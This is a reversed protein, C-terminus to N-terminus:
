LNLGYKQNIVYLINLLLRNYICLISDKYSSFTAFADKLEEIEGKIEYFLPRVDDYQKNNGQRVISSVDTLTRLDLSTKHLTRRFDNTVSTLEELLMKEYPSRFSEIRSSNLNEADKVINSLYEISELITRNKRILLRAVMYLLIAAFAVFSIIIVDLSYTNKLSPLLVESPTINLNILFPIIGLLLVGLFSFINNVSKRKYFFCIILILCLPIISLIKWVFVATDILFLEKLLVFIASSLVCSLLYLYSIKADKEATNLPTILTAIYSIGLIVLLTWIVIQLYLM